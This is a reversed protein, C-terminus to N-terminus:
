LMDVADVDFVVDVGNPVKGMRDRVFRMAQVLRAPSPATLMLMHRYRGRIREIPAPIPGRARLGEDKCAARALEGLQAATKSARGADESEVRVLGLRGFPPYGAGRRSECEVRFFLDDDHEIAANLAYHTPQFTQVIVRGPREARGARGAVQTMLQFTREAARFDPFALSADACLIGVLTVGPFDHGKAVMQTGVLVDAERRRFKGLVDELAGVKSTIDRDLRIVRAEPILAALAEAVRETGFGYPKMALSSCKKCAQELRETHGCYHCVLSRTSKHHTLSVSCAPCKRVEACEDCIVVSNFGRRNLFLIAQEGSSVTERLADELPRTFMPLEHETEMARALDVLVVKPMPRGHIRQALRLETLRGQEALHRTELAPTASGLVAVAGTKKARFLALDRGNYRLDNHQKFSADHEEDVVLIGVNEVPAWIASRPGLAIGARGHRLRHWSQRREKDTMASHLVAVDDGFRARFRAELQSTLAIEPVLVIATKGAARAKAIAQLYVETKGSGTVGRLLFAEPTGAEFAGLIRDLAHRQDDSLALAAEHGPDCAMTPWSEKAERRREILEAALLGKMARRVSDRGLEIGLAEVTAPGSSLRDFLARQAPARRLHKEADDGSAIRRELVEVTEAASKADFSERVGAWGEALMQEVVKKDLTNRKVGTARSAAVLADKLKPDSVSELVARGKSTARLVVQSAATLGPPLAVKLVEGMPSLYYDSAFTILALLDATLLAEDDLVDSIRRIKGKIGEPPQESFGVVFGTLRRPGFPVSVRHGVRLSPRLHEPVEYHFSGHVPLPVIVAAYLSM